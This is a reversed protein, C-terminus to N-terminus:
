VDRSFNHCREHRERQSADKGSVCHSLSYFLPLGAFPSLSCTSSVSVLSYFLTLRALSIDLSLSFSYFLPLSLRSHLSLSVILHSPSFSYFFSYFSSHIFSLSVLLLSLSLSVVAGQSGPSACRCSNVPPLPLPLLLPLMSGILLSLVHSLSLSFSQFLSVLTYFSPSSCSLSPSRTSSLFLSVLSCFLPLRALSLPLRALSLPLPLRRSGPQWSQRLSLFQCAAAAVAVAAAVNFWDAFLTCSLSLSLPFLGPMM